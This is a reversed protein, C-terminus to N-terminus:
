IIMIKKVINQIYIYMNIRAIIMNVKNIGHQKIRVYFNRIILLNKNNIRNAIIEIKNNVHCSSM